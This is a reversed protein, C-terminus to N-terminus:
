NYINSLLKLEEAPFTLIFHVNVYGIVCDIFYLILVFDFTNTNIFLPYLM